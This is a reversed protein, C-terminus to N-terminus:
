GMRDFFDLILAEVAAPNDETMFHAAHEVSAIEFHDAYRSVDGSHKRVFEATLPEDRDGFVYLSPVKLRRKRYAGKALRPVEGGILGRYVERIAADKEPRQLPALYTAVTEEAMPVAVYPARFIYALSTAPRHFRLRPVHRMAPLMGLSMPMFPPPVSLTVLAAIREPADYALHGAVVAGMDHAVMRVRDLGMADILALVDDRMSLHGIRPSAADTWGFGRLDPCIVRYRDALGAGIARWEWWHQPLGHLMVIPEGQGIEAVHTRLGPTEIFRHTFGPVSPLEPVPATTSAADTKEHM